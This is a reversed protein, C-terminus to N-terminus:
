VNGFCIPAGPCTKATLVGSPTVGFLKNCHIVGAAPSPPEPPDVVNNPNVSVGTAYPKPSPPLINTTLLSKDPISNALEIVADTIPLTVPLTVPLALVAVASCFVLVILPLSKLPVCFTVNVVASTESTVFKYKVSSRALPATM